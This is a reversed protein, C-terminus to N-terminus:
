RGNHEDEPELPQAEDDPEIDSDDTGAAEAVGAEYVEDADLESDTRPDDPSISHGQIDDAPAAPPDNDEDLKEEDVAPNFLDDQPELADDASQRADNDDNM